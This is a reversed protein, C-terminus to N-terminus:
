QITSKQPVVIKYEFDDIKIRKCHFCLMSNIKCAHDKVVEDIIKQNKNTLINVLHELEQNKRKLSKNETKLQDLEPCKINYKVRKIPTIRLTTENISFKRKPAQAHLGPLRTPVRPCVHHSQNKFGDETVKGSFDTQMELDDANTQAKDQTVIKEAHHFNEHKKNNEDDVSKIIDDIFSNKPKIDDTSLLDQLVQGM